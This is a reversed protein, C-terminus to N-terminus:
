KLRILKGFGCLGITLNVSYGKLDEFYDARAIYLRARVSAEVKEKAGLSSSPILKIRKRFKYDANIGFIRNYDVMRLDDDDNDKNDGSIETIGLGAFPSLKIRANDLLAYGVSADIIAVHTRQDENWIIDGTYDMKVHDGALTGNLYLLLNKYGFDFGFIFNFTPTFHDGLSGTFIGSGFGAHLAYGFNRDVIEPIKRGSGPTLEGSIKQEWFEITKLDQGGASEDHFKNIDEECLRHIYNFRGDIDFVSTVRDLEDQLKRRYLEVLDFIVQNYRLIQGTKYEPDVWSLGTDMYGEAINRLLITDGYRNKEMHYGLFYKFESISHPSKRETFDHWGLPGDSWYKKQEQAILLSTLFFALFITILARMFISNKTKM